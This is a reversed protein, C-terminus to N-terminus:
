QSIAVCLFSFTIFLKTHTPPLVPLVPFPSLGCIPFRNRTHPKSSKCFVKWWWSQLFYKVNHKFDSASLNSQLHKPTKISEYCQRAWSKAKLVLLLLRNSLPLLFRRKCRRVATARWRQVFKIHSSEKKLTHKGPLTAHSCEQHNRSM